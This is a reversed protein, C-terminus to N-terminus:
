EILALCVQNELRQAKSLLDTFFAAYIKTEVCFNSCDNKGLRMHVSAIPRDVGVRDVGLGGRGQFVGVCINDVNCDIKYM